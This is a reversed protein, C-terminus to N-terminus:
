IKIGARLKASRSRPNIKLEQKSPTIPKPTLIKLSPSREKFFNKVIREELSHFSIVVIRGGASLVELTQPLVKKLNNLEDNVTIRLAQFTRTSPHIRKHQYKLPVARKIVENLQFTTKIPKIKRSKIIEKAIKKAFREEGYERLIKEIEEQSYENIIKEATLGNPFQGAAVPDRGLRSFNSIPFKIDYRMDLPEEKLFTFGRGSKELHWSSMGLDFLIGHVPEFNYKKVIEKLNIYSDNVLILRNPFQTNGARPEGRALGPSIPFEAMQEKLKECIESDIEIGLLKGEPRNRGLIAATHGGGNITCDIFNENPKPNLYELIEKQLVPIHSM